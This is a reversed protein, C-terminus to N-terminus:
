RECCTPVVAITDSFVAGDSAHVECELTMPQGSTPQVQDNNHYVVAVGAYTYQGAADTPLEAETYDAEAIVDGALRLRFLIRVGDAPFGAGVFGGWVHFGGQPGQIIPVPQGAMLPVFQRSGTGVRVYPVGADLPPAGADEARVHDDTPPGGDRTAAAADTLSDGGTAPGGTDESQCGWLVLLAIAYVFRV